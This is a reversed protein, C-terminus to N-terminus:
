KNLPPSSLMSKMLRFSISTYTSMRIWPVVDSDFLHFTAYFIIRSLVLPIDIAKHQLTAHQTANRQAAACRLPLHYTYACACACTVTCAYAYTCPRAYACPGTCNFTCTCTCTCTCTGTCTNAYTYSSM